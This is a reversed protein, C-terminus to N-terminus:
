YLGANRESDNKGGESTTPKLLLAPILGIISAAACTLFGLQYSGTIDFIHGVLVPGIAGGITLGTAIIGTLVGHSILGFLEAVMPSMLVIASHALGFIAAFLYLMWVEKGVLLWLLAISVLILSIILASRNGIRDGASGMIVRGLTSVVGIVTLISAAILAPIGLGTAHIVIHVLIGSTPFGLCFFTVWLMWFQRTHIAERLSLGRAELNSGEQKIEIEGDPLQGISQPNRKLFQAALIILVLPIIGIAIFSTRWGYSIILWSAIPPMITLGIGTGASVIGTMM